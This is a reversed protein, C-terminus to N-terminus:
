GHRGRASSGTDSTDYSYSPDSGGYGIIGFFTFTTSGKGNAGPTGPDGNPGTTGARLLSLVTRDPLLEVYQESLAAFSMADSM